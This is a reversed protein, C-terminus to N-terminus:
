QSRWPDFIWPPPPQRTNWKFDNPSFLCLCRFEGTPQGVEQSARVGGARIEAIAEFRHVVSLLDLGYGGNLGFWDNPHGPTLTAKDDYGEVPVAFMSFNATQDLMAQVMDYPYIQANVDPLASASSRSAPPPSASQTNM